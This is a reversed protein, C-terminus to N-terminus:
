RHREDVLVRVFVQIGYFLIPVLLDVSLNIYKHVSHNIKNTQSRHTMESLRM